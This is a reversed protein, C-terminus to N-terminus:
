GPESRTLAAPWTELRMSHPPDPLFIAITTEGATGVRGAV